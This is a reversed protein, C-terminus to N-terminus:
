IFLRHARMMYNVARICFGGASWARIALRFEVQMRFITLWICMLGSIEGEVGGKATWVERSKMGEVEGRREEAEQNDRGNQAEGERELIQELGWQDTSHKGRFTLSRTTALDLSQQPSSVRTNQKERELLKKRSTPRKEMSYPRESLLPSNTLWIKCTLSTMKQEKKPIKLIPM